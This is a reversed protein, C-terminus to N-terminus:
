AAKLVKTFHETRRIREFDVLEFEMSIPHKDTVAKRCALDGLCCYPENAALRVFLIARDRDGVGGKKTKLLRKTSDSDEYMKSGGFWTIVRGEDLFKNTYGGFGGINVWLFLCNKWEVVGQYKSFKPVSGGNSLAMIAAKTPSMEDLLKGVNDGLFVDLQANLARSSDSSPPPREVATKTRFRKQRPGAGGEDDDDDDDDDAVGAIDLDYNPIPVEAIRQSRRQPMADQKAPNEKIRKKNVKKHGAMDLRDSAGLGIATLYSENRLINSLRLREYDSLELGM